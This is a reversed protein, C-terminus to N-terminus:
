LDLTIPAIFPQGVSQHDDHLQCLREIASGEIQRQPDHRDLPPLFAEGRDSGIVPRLAPEAGSRWENQEVPLTRKRSRATVRRRRDGDGSVCSINDTVVTRPERGDYSGSAGLVHEGASVSQSSGTTRSSSLTGDLRDPEERDVRV